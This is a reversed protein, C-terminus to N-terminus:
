RKDCGACVSGAPEDALIEGLWAAFSKGEAEAEYFADLPTVCHGSGPGVFSSFNPLAEGISAFSALMGARWEELSGGGMAQFRFVQELDSWASYQALRMAPYGKGIAVYLNTLSSLAAPTVGPLWTPYSGEPRWSPYSAGYFQQTIIGAGADGLQYVRAKPYQKQLHPAWMISGYAGASCGSVLIKEPSDFHERVWALAARTNRAGAHHITFPQGAPGQYSVTNDGWHIDGTCYPVYVHHWSAVPNRPDHHDDIGATGPPTATEQFFDSGPACTAADWCAGGGRFEIVVRNVTGPRVYFSFPTGRACLTDGGPRIENWGATLAPSLPREDPEARGACGAVFSISALAFLFSAVPARM